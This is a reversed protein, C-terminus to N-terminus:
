PNVKRVEDIKKDIKSIAEEAKTLIRFQVRQSALENESGDTNKILRSSSLGIAVVKSRVWGRYKNIPIRNLIFDLTRFTRQFSLIMNKFYAQNSSINRNRSWFSSTHGEIRIEDIAERFKEENLIKLYRPIFSRLIKKFRDQLHSQGAVFLIDPERFRITLDQKTLVANWKKFDTNFEKLLEQYLNDKIEQYNKIISEYSKKEKDVKLMYVIALFLFVMMLGAMVDSLAIWHDESERNRGVLVKEFSNM